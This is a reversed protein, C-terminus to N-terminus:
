YNIDVDSAKVFENTAVRYYKIGEIYVISDVFWDSDAVLSRNTILEGKATYLNQIPTNNKVRVTLKTPQYVYADSAKVFENDAIRYYKEGDIFYAIQDSYWSSNPQIERNGVIQDASEYLVKTTKDYTRIHTDLDRYPYVQSAKVWENTAIRYYRIGSVVITQDTFWDTQPALQQSKLVTMNDYNWQYIPINSSDPYTSIDLDTKQVTPQTITNPIKTFKLETIIQITPQGNKDAVIIGTGPTVQYGPVEPKITVTDGFKASQNDSNTNGSVQMTQHNPLSITTQWNKVPNATYSPQQTVSVYFHGDKDIAIVGKSPKNVTYGSNDTNPNLIITQGYHVDTGNIKIQSDATPGNVNASWTPVKTPSYTPTKTIDLSTSGDSNAKIVATGPTTDYGPINPSLTVTQGVKANKGSIQITKGTPDTM